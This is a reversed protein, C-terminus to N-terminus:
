SVGQTDHHVSLADKLAPLESSKRHFTRSRLATSFRSCVSPTATRGRGARGGTGTMLCTPFRQLEPASPLIGRDPARPFLTAPRCRGRARGPADPAHILGTRHADRVHRALVSSRRPLPPILGFTLRQSSSRLMAAPHGPRSSSPSWRKSSVSHM